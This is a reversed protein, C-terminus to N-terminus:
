NWHGSVNGASDLVEHGRDTQKGLKYGQMAKDGRFRTMLDGDTGAPQKPQQRNDFWDDAEGYLCRNAQSVAKAM